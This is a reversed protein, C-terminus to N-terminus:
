RDMEPVVLDLSGMIAVLDAIKLGRLIEPLASFNSFSPTRMKIRFPTRKGDSVIWFGVEGRPGEVSAYVEGAPPEINRPVRARHDGEPFGDMAQRLIALSQRM